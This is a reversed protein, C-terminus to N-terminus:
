EDLCHGDVEAERDTGNALRWLGSRVKLDGVLLHNHVVWLAHDHHVDCVM